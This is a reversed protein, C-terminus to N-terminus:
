KWTVAAAYVNSIKDYTKLIKCVADMSAGTDFLDDVVLANWKGQNTIAPHISFRGALAADKEERTNLNKLQAAGEPAAAKVVITKFVPINAAKGLETAIEEVPQRQRMTSAPVPVILGIAPFLPLLSVRFQEAILPAQGWDGRYKLKFLADGPESRTTDFQPHGYPDDGVYVSSLTHKHLAYGLTWSGKLQRLQVQV